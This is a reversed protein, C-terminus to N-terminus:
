NFNVSNHTFHDFGIKTGTWAGTLTGRFSSNIVEMGENWGIGIIGGVHGREGGILDAYVTNDIINTIIDQGIFNTFNSGAIGGIATREHDFDQTAIITGIFSNGKISGSNNVGVIGGTRVGSSILTGNVVSDLVIAGPQVNGAIGGLTISNVPHISCVYDSVDIFIDELIIKYIFVPHTDTSRGIVGFLGVRTIGSDMSNIGNSTTITLNKIRYEHPNVFMGRFSYTSGSGIPTWEGWEALDIDAMLIFHGDLNDNMAALEEATTIHTMTAENIVHINALIVSYFPRIRQRSANHITEQYLRARIIVYGSNVATIVNNQIAVINQGREQHIELSFDEFDLSIDQFHNNTVTLTDGANLVLHKPQHHHATGGYWGISTPTPPTCATLAFTSIILIASLICTTLLKIKKM